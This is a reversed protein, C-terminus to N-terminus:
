KACITAAPISDLQKKIQEFTFGGNTNKWNDKITAIIEDIQEQPTPIADAHVTFYSSQIFGGCVAFLIFMIVYLLSMNKGKFATNQLILVIILCVILGVVIGVVYNTITSM